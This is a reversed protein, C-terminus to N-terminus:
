GDPNDIYVHYTNWTVIVDLPAGIGLPFWDSFYYSDMKTRYFDFDHVPTGYTAFMVEEYNTFGIYPIIGVQVMGVVLFSTGYTHKTWYKVRVSTAVDWVEYRIDGDGEAIMKFEYWRGTTLRYAQNDYHYYLHGWFDHTTWSWLTYWSTDGEVKSLGIQDYSLASDFCSLLIYYFDSSPTSGSPAQLRVSLVTASYPPPRNGPVPRITGAWWKSSRAGPNEPPYYNVPRGVLGPINVFLLITASLLGFVFLKRTTMNLIRKLQIISKM